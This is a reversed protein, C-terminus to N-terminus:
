GWVSLVLGDLVFLQRLVLKELNLDAVARPRYNQPSPLELDAVESLVLQSIQGAEAFRRQWTPGAELLVRKFGEAALAQLVEQPALQGPEGHELAMLQVSAPLTERLEAVQKAHALVLVPRREADGAHHLAPFDPFAKSGALVALATLKSANLQELSATRASTLAVQSQSRLVSLIARDAPNSIADSTQTETFFAGSSNVVLASRVSDCPELLAGIIAKLEALDAFSYSAEVPYVQELIM